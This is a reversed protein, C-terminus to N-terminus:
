RSEKCISVCSVVSLWTSDAELFLDLAISCCPVWLVELTTALFFMEGSIRVKIGNGLLCGCITMAVHWVQWSIHFLPYLGHIKQKCKTLWMLLISGALWSVVCVTCSSSMSNALRCAYTRVYYHYQRVPISPHCHLSCVPVCLVGTLKNDAVDWPLSCSLSLLFEHLIVLTGEHHTSKLCYSSCSHCCCSLLVGSNWQHLRSSM